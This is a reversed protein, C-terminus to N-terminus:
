HELKGQLRAAKFRSIRKPREEIIPQSGSKSDDASDEVDEVNDENHKPEFASTFGGEQAIFQMRKQHYASAIEKMWLENELAEVDVDEPRVDKEVVVAKVPSKTTINEKVSGVPVSSFSPKRSEKPIHLLNSRRGSKFLSTSRKQEPKNSSSILDIDEPTIKEVYVDDELKESEKAKTLMHAYIDAPSRITHVKTPETTQEEEEEKIFEDLYGFRDESEKVDAKERQVQTQAFSEKKEEDSQYEEVIDVFPLGEENLKAEQSNALGLINSTLGIKTRQNELQIELDDITKRVMEMRRDVIGVAQSTSREVFWNDGLMALIENTHILKGPMFAKNGIPVMIKHETEHNIEELTDKLSKYDREFSKWTELSESTNLVVRELKSRYLQTQESTSSQNSSDGKSKSSM